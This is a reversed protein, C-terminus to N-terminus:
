LTRVLKPEKSLHTIGDTVSSKKFLLQYRKNEKQDFTAEEGIFRTGDGDFKTQTASLDFTTTILKGFTTPKLRIKITTGVAPATAFVIQKASCNDNALISSCDATESTADSQTRVAYESMNLGKNDVQVLLHNDKTPTYPASFVTTSGDGTHTIENVDDFTTGLNNDITWRDIHLNLQKQDYIIENKLRFLAQDGTGPKMYKIPLALRWGRVPSQPTKMWLPLYEFNNVSLGDKLEDQMRTIENPYVNDETTGPVITGTDATIELTDARLQIVLDPLNTSKFTLTEAAGSIADILDIYIIEYITNGGTDKAYSIKYDGARLKVDYNYDKLLAIIDKTLKLEIGSLFLFRPFDTGFNEDEPRYQSENTFVNTNTVLSQWGDLTSADVRFDGHLNAIKKNTLKKVEISFDQTDTVNGFQGDVQVTFTFVNDFTTTNNNFTTSGQDFSFVTDAVKGIIEGRTSLKLGPPLRGSKYSYALVVSEVTTTAAVKYLSVKNPNITGLDITAM